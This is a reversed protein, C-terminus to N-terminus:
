ISKDKLRIRVKAEVTKGSLRADTFELNIENIELFAKPYGEADLMRIYDYIKQLNNLGSLNGEQPLRRKFIVVRGRQSIPKPNNKIIGRIMGFIIDSAHKYIKHAAGSLVLDKKLYIPGADVNKNVKIASIKTKKHGRTILNQLPSGGRGYPLDTMHFVICEFNKYIEAPIFWSWHPFFIYRPKIKNLKNLTLDTKKTILFWRNKKDDAKLKKFNIINWSRVTAIVYNM